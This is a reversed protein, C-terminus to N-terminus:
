KDFLTPPLPGLDDPRDAYRFARCAREFERMEEDTLHELAGPRGNAMPQSLTQVQQRLERVERELDAIRDELGRTTPNGNLTAATAM